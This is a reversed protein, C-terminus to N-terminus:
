PDVRVFEICTQDWAPWPSVGIRAVHMACYRMRRRRPIPFLRALGYMDELLCKRSDGMRPLDRKMESIACIALPAAEARPPRRSSISLITFCRVSRLRFARPRTVRSSNSASRVRWSATAARSAARSDRRASVAVLGLFGALFVALDAAPVFDLDQPPGSGAARMMDTIEDLKAHRAFM